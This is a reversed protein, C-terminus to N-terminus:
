LLSRSSRRLAREAQKTGKTWGRTDIQWLRTRADVSIGTEMSPACNLVFQWGGSYGKRHVSGPM